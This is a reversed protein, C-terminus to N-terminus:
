EDTLEYAALNVTFTCYGGAGLAIETTSNASPSEIDACTSATCTTLTNTLGKASAGCSTGGNNFYNTSDSYWCDSCLKVSQAVTFLASLAVLNLTAQM